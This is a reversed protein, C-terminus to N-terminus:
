KEFYRLISFYIYCGLGAKASAAHMGKYFGKYGDEKLIYRSAIGLNSIFNHSLKLDRPPIMLAMKVNEFPQLIATSIIGSVLGYLGKDSIM